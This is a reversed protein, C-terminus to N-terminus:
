MKPPADPGYSDSVIRWKGDVKQYVNLYKGDETVAKGKADTWTAHYKGIGYAMTGDDSFKIPDTGGTMAVNPLKLFDSNGKLIADHGVQVPANAPMSVADNAYTATLANPDKAKVGGFYVTDLARIEAEAASKDFKAGSTSAPAAATGTDTTAAPKNTCGVLAVASVIMAALGSFRHHM